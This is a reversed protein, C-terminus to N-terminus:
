FDPLDTVRSRCDPEIRDILWTFPFFFCLSPRTFEGVSVLGALLKPRHEPVSDLLFLCRETCSLWGRAMIIRVWDSFGPKVDGEEEVPSGSVAANGEIDLVVLLCEPLEFLPLCCDFVLHTVCEVPGLRFLGPGPVHPALNLEAGVARQVVSLQPVLVDLPKQLVALQEV